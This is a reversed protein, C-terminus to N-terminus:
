TCCTHGSARVSRSLPGRQVCSERLPRTNGGVCSCAPVGRDSFGGSSACRLASEIKSKTTTVSEARRASSPKQRPTMPPAIVVTASARRRPSRGAGGCSQTSGTRYVWSNATPSVRRRRLPWSSMRRSHSRGDGPTTCHRLLSSATSPISAVPSTIPRRGPAASAIAKKSPTSARIRSVTLGLCGHSGSSWQRQQYANM